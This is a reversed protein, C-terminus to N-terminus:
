RVRERLTKCLDSCIGVAPALLFVLRTHLRIKSSGIAVEDMRMNQQEPHERDRNSLMLVRFLTSQLAEFQSHVHSVEFRSPAESRPLAFSGQPRPPAQYGKCLLYTEPEYPHLPLEGSHPSTQLEASQLSM